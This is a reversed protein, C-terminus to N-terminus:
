RRFKAFQRYGIACLAVTVAEIAMPAPWGDYTGDFLVTVLRGIFAIAFLAGAAPLLVASRRWASWAMIGGGVWFFATMDARMSSLGQNGDPLMGFQAGSTAPDIMFGTGMLVFFLGALLLLGRFVLAM